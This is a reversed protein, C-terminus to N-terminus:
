PTPAPATGADLAVRALRLEWRHVRELPEVIPRDMPRITLSRGEDIHVCEFDDGLRTGARARERLSRDDIQLAGLM